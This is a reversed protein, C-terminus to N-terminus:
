SCSCCFVRSVIGNSLQWNKETPFKANFQLCARGSLDIVTRALAEDLPAYSYGYRTIGVKDGLAQYLAQGLAIGIDETSHHDDIHRDGQCSITLDILAHKSIQELMHDLFGIGTQLDSQGKGDLDIKVIIDTEKTKRAISSTRNM